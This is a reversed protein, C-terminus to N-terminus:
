LTRYNILWLSMILHGFSKSTLGAYYKTEGVNSPDGVHFLTTVFDEKDMHKSVYDGNENLYGIICILSFSIAIRCSTPIVKKLKNIM